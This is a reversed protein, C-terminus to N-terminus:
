PPLTRRNGSDASCLKAGARHLIQRCRVLIYADGQDLPRDQRRIAVIDGARAATAARLCGPLYTGTGNRESASWQRIASFSRMRSMAFPARCQVRQSALEGFLIHVVRRHDCLVGGRVRDQPCLQVEVAGRGKHDIVPNDHPFQWRSRVFAPTPRFSLRGDGLCLPGTLPPVLWHGCEVDNAEFTFGRSVILIEDVRVLNRIGPKGPM